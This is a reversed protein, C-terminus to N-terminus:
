RAHDGGNSRQTTADRAHADVGVPLFTTLGVWYLEGLGLLARMLGGTGPTSLLRRVQRHRLVGVLIGSDDVVPIADMRSWAPHSYTSALKATAPLRVTAPQMM